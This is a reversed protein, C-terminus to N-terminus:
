RPGASDCLARAVGLAAEYVNRYNGINQGGPTEAHYTNSLVQKTIYKFGAANSSPVLALGEQAAIREIEERSRNPKEQAPCKVHTPDLPAAPRRRKRCQLEGAAGHELSTSHIECATSDELSAEYALIIDKHLNTRPEWTSENAAYGAWKVLYETRARGRVTRQRKALLTEVEFVDNHSM